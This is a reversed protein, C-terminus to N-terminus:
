DGQWRCAADLFARDLARAVQVRAPPVRRCALSTVVLRMDNIPRSPFQKNIKGYFSPERTERQTSAADESM